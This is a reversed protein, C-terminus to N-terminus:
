RDPFVDDQDALERFFMGATAIDGSRWAALGGSWYAM